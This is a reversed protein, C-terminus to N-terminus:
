QVVEATLYFPGRMPTKRVGRRAEFTVGAQAPMTRDVIVETASVVETILVPKGSLSGSTPHLIDGVKAATLVTGSGVVRTTGDFTLTGATTRLVGQRTLEVDWWYTGPRRGATDAADLFVVAQGLTAGSQTLIVVEDAFYSRKILVAASNPDTVKAKVAYRVVAPRNAVPTAEASVSLDWAVPVVVGDDERDVFTFLVDDSDARTLTYETEVQTM